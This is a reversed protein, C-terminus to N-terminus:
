RTRQSYEDLNPVYDLQPYLRIESAPALTDIDLLALADAAAIADEEIIESDDSLVDLFTTNGLVALLAVCINRRVAPDPHILIVLLEPIHEPGAVSILSVAARRALLGSDTSAADLLAEVVAHRDPESLNGKDLDGAGVAAALRFYRDRSHRLAWTVIDARLRLPIIGPYMLVNAMAQRHHGRFKLVNEVLQTIEPSDLPASVLLDSWADALTDLDRARFFAETLSSADTM